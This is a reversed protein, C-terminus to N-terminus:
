RAETPRSYETLIGEHRKAVTNAATLWLRDIRDITEVGIKELQSLYGRADTVDLDAGSELSKAKAIDDNVESLTSALTETVRAKSSVNLRSFTDYDIRPFTLRSIPAPSLNLFHAGRELSLLYLRGTKADLSRLSLDNRLPDPNGVGYFHTKGDHVSYDMDCGIFGVFDADLFAAAWYGVAIAMTAGGFCFGGFRSYAELYPEASDIIKGGFISPNPRNHEPMEENVIAYDWDDRIKWANNITVIQVGDVKPWTSAEPATLGSGIVIVKRAM